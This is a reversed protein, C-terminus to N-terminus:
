RREPPQDGPGDGTVPDNGTAPVTGGSSTPTGPPPTPEEHILDDDGAEAGDSTASGAAVEEPSSVLRVIARRDWRSQQGPGTQLVVVADDVSVVTAFLGSGTMVECGPALRSQVTQQERRRRRQGTMLMVLLAVTVLLLLISPDV